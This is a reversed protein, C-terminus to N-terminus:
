FSRLYITNKIVKNAPDFYDVLCFVRNSPTKEKLKDIVLYLPQNTKYIPDPGLWNAQVFGHLCSIALSIVEDLHARNSSIYEGIFSKIKEHTEEIELKTGSFCVDKLHEIYKWYFDNGCINETHRNEILNKYSGIQSFRDNTENWEFNCILSLM